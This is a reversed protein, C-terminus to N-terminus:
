IIDEKEEDEMLNLMEGHAMMADLDALVEEKIL